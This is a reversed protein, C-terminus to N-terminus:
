ATGSRRELADSDFPWDQDPTDLNLFECTSDWWARMMQGCWRLFLEDQAPDGTQVWNAIAELCFAIMPEVATDTLPPRATPPPPDDPRWILARLRQGIRKRLAQFSARHVPHHPADRVLVVYGDEFSRAAALSRRMGTGYGHWDRRDAAKLIRITEAFVAQALADRTPYRAALEPLPRGLAEAIGALSAAELGQVRFVRAAVRLIADNAETSAAAPDASAPRNPKSMPGQPYRSLRADCAGRRRAVAAPAGDAYGTPM